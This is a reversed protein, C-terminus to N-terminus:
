MEVDSCAHRNGQQGDTSCFYKAKSYSTSGPQQHLSHMCWAHHTRHITFMHNLLWPVDAAVHYSINNIVSTLFVYVMRRSTCNKPQPRSNVSLKCTYGHFWTTYFEIVCIMTCCTNYWSRYFLNHVVFGYYIIFLVFYCLAKFCAHLSGKVTM